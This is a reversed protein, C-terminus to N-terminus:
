LRTHRAHRKLKGFNARLFGRQLAERIEDRLARHIRRDDPGGTGDGGVAVGAVITALDLRDELRNALPRVLNRPQLLAHAVDGIGADTVVVDARAADEFLAAGPRAGAVAVLVRHEHRREAGREAVLDANARPPRLRADVLEDVDVRDDRQRLLTRVGLAVATV